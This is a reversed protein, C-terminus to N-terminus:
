QVRIPVRVFLGHTGFTSRVELQLVGARSPTYEFDYTEGVAVIERAPRPTRRSAPIDFGDKAVPVWRVLMSDSAYEILSDPRATLSFTPAPTSVSALNLFRFRAARGVHLVVTDPNSRGDIELPHEPNRLQGKLFFVHDDRSAAVGSDRVILAGEMGAIEEPAEDAHAHYMFTGSRPPAFRAIFSDGPVIAPSLHTGEGSFGVVGDMYSDDIEIGHWHVSTPVALRNVITIAVPENRILDIEPSADTHLETRRDQEELVFHMTPLDPFRRACRACTPLGATSAASVYGSRNTGGTAPTAVAILRLRRVPRADHVAIVGSRPAVITGILLGAMDHMSRDGPAVLLSDSSAHMAVHCHFLWNGPRDPSWTMSMTSYPVMRQTVVMQGPVPGFDDGPRPPASYADVRYYFGHLHMPHLQRSANVVRWHLSDGVTAHVRETNPWSRGNITYVFRRGTCEALPNTSTTDDCAVSASDETAMIVFVRDHPATAGASDIVIAGGLAGAMDNVLNVRAPTTARYVYNGPTSARTSLTGVAGPAVVMSDLGRGHGPVGRVSTPVLFTLPTALENRISFRIETGAPARVLPGPAVPAKGPESFVEVMEAPRGPGDLQWPGKRAELAVTLVGGRLVGAREVNSNPHVALQPPHVPTSATVLLAGALALVPLHRQPDGHPAAAPRRSGPPTSCPIPRPM